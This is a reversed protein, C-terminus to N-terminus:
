CSLIKTTYLVNSPARIKPLLEITHMFGTKCVPCRCPDFGTLRVIREQRTEKVKTEPKKALLSKVRDKQKSSLIGYYRIKVFRKPLIHMCFRRLFEVGTLTTPKIRSNDRYDKYFFTIGSDAINEIRHNSIAIRHTYQGLYKVIQQANGFPPECHVVWEKKWVENLLSQYKPLQNNQRLQRKLKKLLISRLAPSLMLVPYLYKGRKTIRKLNGSLTLGAAPVICHIHPHLSINQGWTHLVCIAGSEIGYHTYGFQLLVSWVCEFLSKYFQKSGLLCIQNLEEPVTFVIHFYKVDLADNMRDDVWLAQKAGQCKPCHRNGCSNYSIREEGCFDCFDKHGGLASTRCKQLADLTRVIFSNPHYKEIYQQGFREIIQAVEFQPREM